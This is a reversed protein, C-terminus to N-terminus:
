QREAGGKMMKPLRPGLSQFYEILKPMFAELTPYTAREREYEGLLDYLEQAWFFSNMTDAQIARRAAAEGGHALVYRAVCARVLSEYLVIRPDGYAQARMAGAVPVFIRAAAPSLERSHADILPNAYSHVFEHVLVDRMEPGFVPAGAGDVNWVGLIAYMEEVGDAGRFKSGYNSRGNVLAAVVIFRAGAQGGFFRGFWAQDLASEAFTKLRRSATEYLPKQSQVFEFYRTEAVFRRAAELFRRAEGGHWRQDLLIGPQDLPMREALTEINTVHVALSMVADYAVGDKRRLERALRVAEHDRFEKFHADIAAEYGPIAGQSYEPSGALHFIISLLEVRQDTGTELGQARGLAAMGCLAMVALLYRFRRNRAMSEM